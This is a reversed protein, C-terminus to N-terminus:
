YLTRGDPSLGVSNPTLLPRVVVSAASGDAQGDYPRGVDMDTERAKGLDTFYFGSSSSCLKRSSAVPLLQYSSVLWVKATKRGTFLTPTIPSQRM